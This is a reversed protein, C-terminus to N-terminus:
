NMILTSGCNSCDSLETSVEDPFPETCYPCQREGQMLWSMYITSPPHTYQDITIKLRIINESKIFEREIDIGETRGMVEKNTVFGTCREYLELPMDIEWYFHNFFKSQDYHIQNVPDLPFDKMTYSAYITTIEGKNLTIEPYHFQHPATPDDSSKVQRTEIEEGDPGWFEIDGLNSSSAFEVNFNNYNDKLGRLEYKITNHVDVPGNECNSFSTFYTLSDVVYDERRILYIIYYKLRGGSIYIIITAVLSAIIGALIDLLTVM